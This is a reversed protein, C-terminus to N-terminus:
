LYGYIMVFDDSIVYIHMRVHSQCLEEVHKRRTSRRRRAVAYPQHQVGTAGFAHGELSSIDSFPPSLPTYGAQYHRVDSRCLPFGAGNLLHNVRQYNLM